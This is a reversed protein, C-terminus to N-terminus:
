FKDRKFEVLTPHWTNIYSPLPPLSFKLSPRNFNWLNLEKNESTFRWCSREFKGVVWSCVAHVTSFGVNLVLTTNKTSSTVRSERVKIDTYDDSSPWSCRDHPLCTFDFQLSGTLISLFFQWRDELGKVRLPSQSRMEEHFIVRSDFIQTTLIFPIIM